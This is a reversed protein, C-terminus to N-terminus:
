VATFPRIKSNQSDNEKGTQGIFQELDVNKTTGPNVGYFKAMDKKFEIPRKVIDKLSKTKELEKKVEM